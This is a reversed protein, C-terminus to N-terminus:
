PHWFEAAAIVGLAKALEAGYWEDLDRSIQVLRATDKALTLLPSRDSRTALSLIGVSRGRYGAYFLPLSVVATPPNGEDDASVTEFRDPEGSDLVDQRVYPTVERQRFTHGAIGRGPKFAYAEWHEEVIDANLSAVCALASIQRNYVYLTVEINDLDVAPAFIRDRALALATRVAQMHSQRVTRLALLRRGMEEVFGAQIPNFQAEGADEPLEWNIEYLYGPLPNPLNFLLTRAPPMETLQREAFASEEDDRRNGPAIATLRFRKPYCKDPFVLQFVYNDYLHRFTVRLSEECDTQNTVDLRERQTFSFANIIYRDRKYSVPRGKTLPPTFVIEGERHDQNNQKEPLWHWAVRQGETLSEFRPETLKAARANFGQGVLGVPEALAEM